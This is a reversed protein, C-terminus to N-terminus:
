LLSNEGATGGGRWAENREGNKEGDGGGSEAHPATLCCAGM